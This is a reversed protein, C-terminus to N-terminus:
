RLGLGFGFGFRLHLLPLQATHAVDDNLALEGYHTAPHGDVCQPAAVDESLGRHDVFPRPLSRQPCGGGGLRGHPRQVALDELTGDLTLGLAAPLLDVREQPARLEEGAESVPVQPLEGVGHLVQVEGCAM